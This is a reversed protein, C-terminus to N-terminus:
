PSYTGNRASSCPIIPASLWIGRSKVGPWRSPNNVTFPGSGPTTIQGCSGCAPSGCVYSTRATFSVDVAHVFGSAFTLTVHCSGEKEGYVFLTKETFAGAGDADFTSNCPGSITVRALDSPACSLDIAAPESADCSGCCSSSSGCAGLSVCVGVVTLLGAAIALTLAGQM